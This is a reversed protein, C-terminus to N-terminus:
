REEEEPFIGQSNVHVAQPSDGAEESELFHALAGIQLEEFNPQLVNREHFYYERGDKTKIFGYDIFLRDIIGQQIEEHTKIDGRQKRSYEELQRYMANFSDRMSVYLDENPNHNVFLRKGPVLVLISVDYLKGNHKHKQPVEVVVKCSEIKDYYQELKAIKQQMRNDLADTKEVDRFTVETPISM